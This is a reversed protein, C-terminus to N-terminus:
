AILLWDTSFSTNQLGKGIRFNSTFMLNEQHQGDTNLNLSLFGGVDEESIGDLGEQYEKAGRYDITSIEKDEVPNFHDTGKEDLRLSKKM